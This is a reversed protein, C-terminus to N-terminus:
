GPRAAGQGDRRGLMRRRFRAAPELLRGPEVNFTDRALALFTLYPLQRRQPISRWIRLMRRPDLYFRLYAKRRLAFFREDDVDSMNTRQHVYLQDVPETGLRGAVGAHLETGKFPTVVFFFAVHLKSRLAFEVTNRMEAETESPFGLMFFGATLVDREAFAEIVPLLKDFRLHKRIQKQVRPSTTEIAIGVYECGARALKDVQPVRMRDARVGNPFTFRIRYPLALIRDCIGDMRDADFNFIDDVIDFDFVGHDRTLEEIMRLVYDVSHARFRKGQIDHCYTCRYPCGRSTMLPMYRRIGAMSQGKRRSYADIDTLDWAPMPLSDLQEFNPRPAARRLGLLGRTVVGPVDNWVHGARVRDLIECFALEGEGIVVGDIASNALTEAEYASPHPGGALIVADAAAERAIRAYAHMTFSESTLASLGIVAPRLKRIAGRIAAEPREELYTDVAFVNWGCWERAVAGLYMLGLAPASPEGRPHRLRAKILLVTPRGDVLARGLLM